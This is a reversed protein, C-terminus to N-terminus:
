FIRRNLSRLKLKIALLHHTPLQKSVYVLSFERLTSKFCPNFSGKLIRLVYVIKSFLYPRLTLISFKVFIHILLFLCFRYQIQRQAVVEFNLRKELTSFVDTRNQKIRSQLVVPLLSRM